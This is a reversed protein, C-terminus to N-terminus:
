LKTRVYIQAEEIIKQPTSAGATIGVSHVESPLDGKLDEVSQICLTLPCLDECIEQLKRTNSSNRGGIVIMCDVQRALLAAAEQREATANCITNVVTVNYAKREFNDIIKQFKTAQYTTQVVLCYTENPSLAINEADEPTKIVDVPGNCWGVIGEVEPHDPNGVVLVHEGAASHEDVIRHIKHVFPCTMDAVEVGKSELVGYIRRPIGHARIILTADKEPTLERLAAEDPIVRVGRSELDGVVTENHVIPGYTYIPHGQNLKEYVADVARKVGFCFGCPDALKVEM